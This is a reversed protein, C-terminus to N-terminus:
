FKASANVCFAILDVRDNDGIWYRHVYTNLRSSVQNKCPFVAYCYDGLVYSELSVENQYDRSRWRYAVCNVSDNNRRVREFKSFSVQKKRNM